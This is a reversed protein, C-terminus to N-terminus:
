YLYELEYFFKKTSEPTNNTYHAYFVGGTMIFTAGLKSTGISHRGVSSLFVNKVGSVRFHVKDGISFTDTTSLSVTIVCTTTNVALVEGVHEMYNDSDRKLIIGFGINILNATMSDVQISSTPSTIDIAITGTYPPQFEVTLEDGINESTVNFWVALLNIPYNFSITGTYENQAPIDFKFGETRFNGQTKTHEEKVIVEKSNFFDVISLSNNNVVHTNDIFCISDPTYSAEYWRYVWQNETQCFIRWKNLETYM